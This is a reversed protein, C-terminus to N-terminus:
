YLKPKPIARLDVSCFAQKSVTEGQANSVGSMAVVGNKDVIDYPVNPIPVQDFGRVIQFKCGPQGGSSRGDSACGTVLLGVLSCAAM